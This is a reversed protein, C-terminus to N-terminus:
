RVTKIMTSEIQSKRRNFEKVIDTPPEDNRGCHSFHYGNLSVFIVDRNSCRQCTVLVHVEGSIESQGVSWIAKAEPLVPKPYVVEEIIGADVLVPIFPHPTVEHIKGSRLVKVKM